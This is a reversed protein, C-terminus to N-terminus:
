ADLKLQKDLIKKVQKDVEAEYHKSEILWNRQRTRFFSQQAECMLRVLNAFSELDTM